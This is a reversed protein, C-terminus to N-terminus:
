AQSWDGNLPSAFVLSLDIQQSVSSLFTALDVAVTLKVIVQKIRHSM